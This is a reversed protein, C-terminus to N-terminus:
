SNCLELRSSSVRLQVLKSCDLGNAFLCRLPGHLMNFSRSTFKSLDCEADDDYLGAFGRDVGLVVEM